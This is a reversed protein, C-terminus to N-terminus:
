DIAAGRARRSTRRRRLRRSPGATSPSRTQPLGLRRMNAVMGDLSVGTDFLLRHVRGDSTEVEVLASFRHEGVPGDLVPDDQHAAAPVRRVPRLPLREGRFAGIEAPVVALLVRCVTAVIVIL